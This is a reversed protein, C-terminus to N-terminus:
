FFVLYGFTGCDGLKSAENASYADVLYGSSGAPNAAHWERLMGGLLVSRSLLGM